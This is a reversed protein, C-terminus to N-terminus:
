QMNMRLPLGNTQEAYNETPPLLLYGKIEETKYM